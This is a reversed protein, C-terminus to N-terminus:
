AERVQRRKVLHSLLLMHCINFSHHCFISIHKGPLYQIELGPTTLVKEWMQDQGKYSALDVFPVVDDENESVEMPTKNDNNNDDKGALMHTITMETVQSNSKRGFHSLKVQRSKVTRSPYLPAIRRGCFVGKKMRKGGLVRFKLHDKRLSLIVSDKRWTNYMSRYLETLQGLITEGCTLDDMQYSLDTILKCQEWIGFSVKNLLRLSGLEDPVNETGMDTPGVGMGEKVDEPVELTEPVQTNTDIFNLVVVDPEVDKVDGM